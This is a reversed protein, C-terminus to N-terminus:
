ALGRVKAIHDGRTRAYVWKDGLYAIAQNRKTALAEQEFRAPETIVAGPMPRVITPTDFQGVFLSKLMRIM